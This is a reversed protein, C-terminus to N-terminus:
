ILCIPRYGFLRLCVQRYSFLMLCVPRCWRGSNEMGRSGVQAHELLKQRSDGNILRYFWTIWLWGGGRWCWMDLLFSVCISSLSLQRRKQSKPWVVKKPQWQLETSASTSNIKAPWWIKGSNNTGNQHCGSWVSFGANEALVSLWWQLRGFIGSPPSFRSMITATERRQHFRDRPTLCNQSTKASARSRHNVQLYWFMLWGECAAAYRTSRSRHPRRQGDRSRRSMM